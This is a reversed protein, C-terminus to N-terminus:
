ASAKAFDIHQMRPSHGPAGYVFRYHLQAYGGALHLPKWPALVPEQQGKWGKFQFPEWAHYIIVQGPPVSPAVKALAEFAGADNFVRIRDGDAVGRAEADPKAVWVSPEGRQLRLLLSSDRWRAHISWRTHGGSLRLPHDGGVQPPEKHVPLMEGVEDFWPHDILFQQRGSYTPWARRKETFRKLPHLTRGPEYDSAAAFVAHPEDSAEVVPLLGTKRAEDFGVKGTTRTSKLIRDLAARPDTEDYRGNGSWLDYLNSLDVDGGVANAVKTVGRAKAREQVKRALLGFIEWEPKSEGLPEVVKECLVIYPLYSQPYKLADREYYGAAPLIIDAMMGSASLKMNIDVILELKPWLNKRAIQPAPWRRLPNAARFLFVKPEIPSRPHIPIWRKEVSEKMYEAVSRPIAPDHRQPPDWIEAYGGHAYLFPMLPTVGGTLTMKTLLEEYERWSLAGGFLQGWIMRLILSLPVKPRPGGAFARESGKMPWWSAIRFGGGSRGQNGTLAMLLIQARQMLDSHYHKCAGWGSLIMAANATALERAFRRITEPGVGTVEAVQEPTYEADLHERLRQLLPVAQVPTGDALRVAHSGSLAPRIGGLALTDKGHGQCGPVEALAGKAEDWFYLLDEKGGAQLDSARLYRGTDTRVLIPLDTQERVQAEDHLGESLIVQAMGLALAADTGIRPNVWTDAHITTASYNPDVVALEAGRYRAEHMFHTEPMRTYAPNGLWVIILDSKFWDDSTGEVDYMGLTQCAGMPMDGVGAMSEIM